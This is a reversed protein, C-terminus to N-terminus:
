GEGHPAGRVCRLRDPFGFATLACPVPTGRGIDYPCELGFVPIIGPTHAEGPANWDRDWFRVALHRRNYANELSFYTTINMSRWYFRRDLRLRLTHFPPNRLANVREIDLIGFWDVGSEKSREADFPTYPTGGAYLWRLSCQWKNSPRYGAQVSFLLRNDHTRGRWLGDLGRYLSRSYSASALGFFSRTLRKQLMLEAGYARARGSDVLRDHTLLFGSTLEDIVFFQPRDPDLLQHDYEKDYLEVTLRTTKGLRQELGVIAHYAVPNGLDGPTEVLSLVTMPVHQRFAGVSASVRTSSSLAYNASLRPSVHFHENFSFFGVRAGAQITLRSAPLLTHNFFLSYRWTPVTQLKSTDPIANGLYDVYESAFWDFDNAVRKIEFGLQSAHRESHRYYNLNRLLYSSESNTAQIRLRDDKEDFFCTDYDTRSTSLSTASYGRNSWQYRWNVGGVGERTDFSGYYFDGFSQEKGMEFHDDGGVALLALRHKDSLDLTLKGQVDVYRPIVEYDLLKFLLDLNSRRASLLWAGKSGLPGETTVGFGTVGTDLQLQFADRNGERFRIDMVSSLYDGYVPSFGGSYLTVDDILDLNLLGVPSFGSSTGQIPYHNINPIEINDIYSISEIPSGGRVILHNMAPNVKAVSPLVLLHKTIDVASRRVEEHSFSTVSIPQEDPRPFYDPQVTVEDHFRPRPSLRISVITARGSKVVVDTLAQPAHNEGSVALSYNGVPVGAIDFRGRGDTVIRIETELIKVEAGAVPSDMALDVVQGQISGTLPESVNDTAGAFLAALLWALLTAWAVTLCSGGKEYTWNLRLKFDLNEVCVSV